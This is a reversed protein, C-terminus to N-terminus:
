IINLSSPIFRRHFSGGSRVSSERQYNMRSYKSVCLSTSRYKPLSQQAVCCCLFIMWVLITWRNWWDYPYGQCHLFLYIYPQNILNVFLTRRVVGPSIGGVSVRRVRCRGPHKVRAFDYWPGANVFFCAATALNGVVVVASSSPVRPWQFGQGSIKSPALCYPLSVCIIPRNTLFDYKLAVICICSNRWGKLHHSDNV